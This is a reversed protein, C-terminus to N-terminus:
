LTVISGDLKMARLKQRAREAAERSPFPGLRVRTRQGQPTSLSETYAKLGNVNLQDRMHKAKDPASFAAIQVAFGKGSAPEVTAHPLAKGELAALARPDDGQAVATAAGVKEGSKEMKKEAAKENVKEVHKEAAKPVPKESSPEPAPKVNATKASMIPKSAEVSALPPHAVEAGANTPAGPAAANPTAPSPAPSLLSSSPQLPGANPDPVGRRGEFPTDRGPIQVAIDDVPPVQSRDFLMPVFVVAALALAIAGILRRRARTKAAHAPDLPAAADAGSGDVGPSSARSSAARAKRASSRPSRRLSEFPVEDARVPEVPAKNRSFLSM